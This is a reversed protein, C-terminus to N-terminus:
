TRRAIVKLGLDYGRGMTKTTFTGIIVEGWPKQLILGGGQDLTQNVLTFHQDTDNLLKTSCVFLHLLRGGQDLTQNVCLFHHDKDYLLKILRRISVSSIIIQIM